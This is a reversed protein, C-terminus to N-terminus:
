LSDDRILVESGPRLKIAGEVVVKQSPLLGSVVEVLGPRRRGPTVEVRKAKGDEVIFVFHKDKVPIVASEAITIINDISRELLINLLMGPRILMDSNNIEARVQVARTVPDLRSNISTIKGAFLKNKYAISSAEISQGLAITTLDKEPVTFDVKITSIDDLTTIKDSTSVFAGQSIMRLGLVGDFPAVIDFEALKAKAKELQAAIAKVKAQQEELLSQSTSNTRQLDALRNQQSKAEALNATLEKVEAQEQESRLSALVQNKNILNGDEFHVSVVRGAYRPYITVEENARATGLAEILDRFPRIAVEAVKVAVVATPAKRQQQPQPWNLYAVLAAILVVVIILPIRAATRSDM